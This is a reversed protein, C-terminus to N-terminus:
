EITVLPNLFIRNGYKIIAITIIAQVILENLFTLNDEDLVMAALAPYTEALKTRLAATNADEAPLEVTVLSIDGAAERASAFFLVQVQITTCDTM